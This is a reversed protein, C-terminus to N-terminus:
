LQEKKNEMIGFYWEHHLWNGYYDGGYVPQTIHTLEKNTNQIIKKMEEYDRFFHTGTDILLKQVQETVINDKLGSFHFYFKGDKSLPADNIIRQVENDSCHLFVLHCIIIDCEPAYKLNITDYTETVKSKVKELGLESIDVAYTKWALKAIESIGNGMGIGIEMVKKGILDTPLLNYFKLLRLMDTGALWQIESKQHKEEWFEKGIPVIGQTM